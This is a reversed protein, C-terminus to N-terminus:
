LSLSLGKSFSWVPVEDSLHWGLDYMARASNKWSLGTGPRFQDYHLEYESLDGICRPSTLPPMSPPTRTNSSGFGLATVIRFVVSSSDKKRQLM